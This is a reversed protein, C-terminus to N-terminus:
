KGSMKQSTRSGGRGGRFGGYTVHLIQSFLPTSSWILWQTEGVPFRSAFQAAKLGPCFELFNQSYGKFCATFYRQSVHPRLVDQSPEQIGWLCIKFLSTLNSYSRFFRFINGYSYSCKMDTITRNKFAKYSRHWYIHLWAFLICLINHAFKWYSAHTGQIGFQLHSCKDNVYFDHVHFFRIIYLHDRITNKINKHIVLM